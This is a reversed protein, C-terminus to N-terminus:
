AQYSSVEPQRYRSENLLIASSPSCDEAHSGDTTTPMPGGESAYFRGDSGMMVGVGLSLGLVPQKNPSAMIPAAVQSLARDDRVPHSQQRNPFLRSTNHAIKEQGYLQIVAETEQDDSGKLLLTPHQPSCANSMKYRKQRDSSNLRNDGSARM